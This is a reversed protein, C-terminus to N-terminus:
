NMSKEGFLNNSSIFAFMFQPFVTKVVNLFAVEFDSTVSKPPSMLYSAIINLVKGHIAQNKRPLLCYLFPVCRENLSAHIM